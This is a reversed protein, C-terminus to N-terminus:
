VVKIVGRRLVTEGKRQASLSLHENSSCQQASIAVSAAGPRGHERGTNLTLISRPEFLGCMM